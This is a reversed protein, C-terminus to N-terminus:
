YGVIKFHYEIFLSLKLFEGSNLCERLSATALISFWPLSALASPAFRAVVVGFQLTGLAGSV